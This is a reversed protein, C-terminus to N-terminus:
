SAFFDITEAIVGANTPLDNHALSSDVQVNVAPAPNQSNTAPIIVGDNASWQVEVAVGQATIQPWAAQLDAITSTQGAMDACSPQLAACLGAFSTGNDAGALSMWHDVKGACGGLEICYRTVMSGYSHSVIDVEDQGTHDRLHDVETALIASAQQASIASDYYLVTIDGTTYGAAHFQSVATDWTTESGNWGHVFVVPTRGSPTGTPRITECAAGLVLLALVAAVIPIRKM